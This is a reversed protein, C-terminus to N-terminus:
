CGFIKRLHMDNDIESLVGYRVFRRLGFFEIIFEVEDRCEYPFVFVSKQLEHFGLALLKERLADRGKRIKEPIDFVVIRWRGDWKHQSIKMAAFHYTLTRMKGKDTLLLSLSGDPNQKTAVLKTRYLERVDDNIRKQDIRRWEKSITKLVKRQMWPTYSFGLTIGGLLLLLIKQKNPSLEKM